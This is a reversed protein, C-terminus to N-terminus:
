IVCRSLSKSQLTVHTLNLVGIRKEKEQNLKWTTGNATTIRREQLWFSSRIIKLDYICKRSTIFHIFPNYLISSRTILHILLGILPNISTQPYVCSNIKDKLYKQFQSQLIRTINLIHYKQAWDPGISLHNVKHNQLM